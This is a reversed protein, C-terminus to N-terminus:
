MDLRGNNNFLRNLLYHAEGKTLDGIEHNGMYKNIWNMQKYTAPENSWKRIIHM